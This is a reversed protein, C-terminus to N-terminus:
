HAVLWNDGHGCEALLPVRMTFAREMEEIVLAQVRDLEDHPVSFNLEDHVQLIMKARLGDAQLRRDIAVMALKIIDAATGQIPANVANREAYGRVTANRSLIDALYRRRGFQTRIFGEQRAREVSEQMYERVRPYTAFYSDILEKAESRSVNMREALGFASIGYIIGFNATKAKRREDRDVEDISKGFIRAATSAHIDRGAKFDAIMNEDGSLHAMIRLEIQSYDASFFTCGAEPVFARRIERGDEGRVPINQLNPNASSLRGTATVAQNFSTHLHGTTPHLMRPLAEVYTSLLKKLGRHALIKEVIPHANRFGELVEESTSYQGTKTKKVKQSIRLEDFLVEGVQKPSTLTFPHGALQYVEAELQEMRERFQRETERLAETDLCVGHQEMRVLVPLLPMEIDRFVSEVEHERMEAELLPKLALCLDADECAYDVIDAAPLDAMSRQTRGSGILAEIPITRYHLYVEALHDLNHRQEPQVVYHALMTDFLPGNVKAGHRQLVILDYKLNQGVKLIQDNEFFPALAHTFKEIEATERPVSVYWARGGEVAFSMGVLRALMPDVSTTETDLAVESFTLLTRCLDEADNLNDILQYDHPREALSSFRAEEGASPLETPQFDTNNDLQSFLDPEVPTAQKKEQEGDIYRRIFSRFELDEFIQRLAERDPSQLTLDDLSCPLPADTRITALHKSLRIQEVNEEVKKKQAGKLQDTNALLNEISGFQAILKAATKEGVGPCGPINDATDGMLGLLDIVQEPREIGYKACVEEVGLRELRDAGSTPRCMTVGPRVLQAYDKDPTIMEVAYGQAAAQVALTGVVDDAEFGPVEVIPIRYAEVIQKIHPVAWRIDEPTAERQAKYPPYQEHRFTPGAPDFCVAIHSPQLTSLLDELTNVFGFVASTNQGKSNVRPARILGYYARFILAYADLLILKPMTEPNTGGFTIM